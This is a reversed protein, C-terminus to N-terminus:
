NVLNNFKSPMKAIFTVMKRTVPHIISIKECHLMIRNEVFHSGYKFDGVIPHGISGMHVRIQHTRGTEIIVRILSFQHNNKIKQYKTIAKKGNKSIVMTNNLHRNSGIPKDILGKIPTNGEVVTIYQKIIDKTEFIKSLYALTIIDKCYILCGSTDIDLRHAPYYSSNIGNIQLYYNVMNSVNVFNKDDYITFGEPKNIVLLYDDEYIIEFPFRFSSTIKKDFNSLDILLYEGSNIISDRKLIVDNCFCLKNDILYNIKNKSVYMSNFWDLLTTSKNIKVSYYSM